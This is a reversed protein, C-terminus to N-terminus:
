ILGLLGGRLEERTTADHLIVLGAPTEWTAVVNQSDEAALKTGEVEDCIALPIQYTDTVGDTYTIKIYFLAPPVTDRASNDREALMAAGAPIEAWSLVRMSQITRAKAGFWRQRPLWSKLANELFLGGDSLLGAWGNTALDPGYAPTGSSMGLDGSMGVSVLEESPQPKASAPQLELWLFSYPALSLTYPAATITPFPVYGLMEVPELGVHNALDLSVPQAFRSLNAVCLVTEQSGDARELNRLYALIKRNSPNLFSLTGRGFVQFLKRLAIM